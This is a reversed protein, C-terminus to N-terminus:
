EYGPEEPDSDLRLQTSSVVVRPLLLGSAFDLRKTLLTYLRSGLERFQITPQLLADLSAAHDEVLRISFGIPELYSPTMYREPSFIRYKQICM